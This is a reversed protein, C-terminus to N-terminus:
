AECLQRVAHALEGIENTYKKTRTSVGHTCLICLDDQAVQLSDEALFFFFCLFPLWFCWWFGLFSGLGLGVLGFCSELPDRLPSVSHLLHSVLKM